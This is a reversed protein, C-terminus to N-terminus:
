DEINKLHKIHKIQDRFFLKMNLGNEQIKEAIHKGGIFHPTIVYAAGKKYLDLADDIENAVVLIIAKKNCLKVRRMFLHNTELDPVTSIFVKASCLDIENLLDLDSIDGYICNYGKKALKSVIDPNHEVILLSDKKKEFAELISHGTRHAGFLIIEYRKAKVPNEPRSSRREFVSLVPSLLHFLRDSYMIFYTSGGITILAVITIISLVEQSIHGVKAGLAVLILSFESIQAAVLGLLFSTHKKYGQLGMLFLLIIPNGILIFLSLILILPIHQTINTFVVQTGLWIFFAFIFFDRIPKLKSAIEQRYPSLSLTVGALLAGVEISFNFYEFAAAVVFCWGLSFLLLYEQSKAIRKTIPPIAFHGILFLAVILVFGMILSSFILSSISGGTSISSIIMLAIIAIIDQVILFGIAIKGYLKDSDGKDSLLKLIIITSSFALAIALYVSTITDLGFAKSILFGISATFAVQGIGTIVAVPGTEKITKPNLGLGVIFLLLAVGIESFTTILETSRVLNLFSPSVIIGTVIYGIILPQKLVRTISIVAVAILIIASLEIFVSSM